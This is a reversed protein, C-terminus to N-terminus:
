VKQSITDPHERDFVENAWLMVILEDNGINTINHAWGPISDVIQPHEKNVKIEITEDSIINRFNFLAEGQVVIFKETKSHHYHEGRSIGSHATFFSFQGCDATKLIEVFIGRSDKVYKLPSAFQDSPLYSIFTSYLARTLGKGVRSIQAMQRNTHFSQIESALSDLTINYTPTVSRFSVGEYQGLINSILDKILDDIYVLELDLKPNHIEIPLNRAINFCFTAVVSNYNPKCWKGFVGPLRYIIASNNTNLSHSEICIEALKKSKGYENPLDAQTSSAFIIPIVRKSREIANCIYHTLEVNGIYFDNTSNPRNEGALHIIKDATEILETLLELSQGRDFTDLKIGPLKSLHSTLNKGIFGHSGTVLLRM